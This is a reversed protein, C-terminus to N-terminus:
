SHSETRCANPEALDSLTGFIELYAAKYRSIPEEGTMEQPLAALLSGIEQLYNLIQLRDTISNGGGPQADDDVVPYM